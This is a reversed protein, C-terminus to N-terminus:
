VGLAESSYSYGFWVVPYFTFIVLFVDPGMM